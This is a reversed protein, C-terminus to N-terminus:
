ARFEYYIGPMEIFGPLSKFHTLWHRIGPYRDLSLGGDEALAVHPFCALDAVTPADGILWPLAQWDQHQVHDDLVELMQTAQAMVTDIDADFSLASNLRAAGAVDAFRASFSMWNNIKALLRVDDQPYWLKSSDYVQALYVLIANVEDLVLDGDVLAPLQGLPSIRKYATQTHEEGPFFDVPIPQYSVDLISMFLRVAYCDASLPYDYLKM